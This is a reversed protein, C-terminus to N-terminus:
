VARHGYLEGPVDVEFMNGFAVTGISLGAYLLGTYGGALALRACLRLTCRWTLERSDPTPSRAAFPTLVTALGLSSVLLGWRWFEAYRDVDVVYVGYLVGSVLYFGTLLWRETRGVVGLEDLASTAFVAILTPVAALGFTAAFHGAGPTPDIIAYSLVM